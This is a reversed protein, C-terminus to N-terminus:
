RDFATMRDVVARAKAQSLPKLPLRPLGARLGIARAAVKVGPIGHAEVAGTIETIAAQADMGKRPSKRTTAVLEAAQNPIYNTSASIVGHAGAIVALAISRSAGNFMFFDSPAGEIIRQIRVADGGSDKMGVINELHSLSIAAELDLAYGTNPPVSYLLVPLSSRKSVTEFYTVQTAVSRRPLTTPTVVLIADAGATEAEAIQALAQRISEAWVGVMVFPKAGLETRIADVLVTREGPELFSGEGTSGAILFGQVGRETLATVNHRHAELDLDGRRDFPTIL